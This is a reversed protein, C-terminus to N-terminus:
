NNHLMVSINKQISGATVFVKVNAKERIKSLKSALLNWQVRSKWTLQSSRSLQCWIWTCLLVPFKLTFNYKTLGSQTFANCLQKMQVLDPLLVISKTVKALILPALQCTDPCHLIWLTTTHHTPKQQPPTTTAMQGQQRTAQLTQELWSGTMTAVVPAAPPPRNPTAPRWDWSPLPWDGLTTGRLARSLHWGISAIKWVTTRYPRPLQSGSWASHLTRVREQRRWYESTPKHACGACSNVM